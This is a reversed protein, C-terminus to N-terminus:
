LADKNIDACRNGVEDMEHFDATTNGADHQVKQRSLLKAKM